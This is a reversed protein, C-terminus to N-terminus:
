DIPSKPEKDQFSSDGVSLGLEIQPDIANRPIIKVPM